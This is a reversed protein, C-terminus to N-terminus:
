EANRNKAELFFFFTKQSLSCEDELWVDKIGHVCVSTHRLLEQTLRGGIDIGRFPLPPSSLQVVGRSHFGHTPFSIYIYTLNECAAM